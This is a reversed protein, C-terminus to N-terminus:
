AARGHSPPEMKPNMEPPVSYRLVPEVLLARPRILEGPQKPLRCRVVARGTQRPGLYSAVVREAPLEAQGAM